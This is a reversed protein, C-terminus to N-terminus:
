PEAPTERRPVSSSSGPGEVYRIEARGRLDEVWDEIRRDLAQRELRARLEPTAEEFPPGEPEGKYDENWAARLEEQGIRLQPRFRFDVYRLIVAQRQILRRLESRPVRSALDPRTELLAGLAREVDEDSVAAQPLRAAEQHMLREDISAELAQGRDLHRVAEVARVESLLLPREDVVALIREVLEDDPAPDSAAGPLAALLLPLVLIIGAPQRFPSKSVRTRASPGLDALRGGVVGAAVSGARVAFRLTKLLRSRSRM